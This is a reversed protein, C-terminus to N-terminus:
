QAQTKAENKNIKIQNIVLKVQNEFAEKKLNILKEKSNVERCLKKWERNTTTFALEMDSNTAYTKSFYTKLYNNLIQTYKDTLKEQEIARRKLKDDIAMDLKQDIIPHIFQKSFVSKLFRKIAIFLKRM